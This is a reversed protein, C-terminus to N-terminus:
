PISFLGSYVCINSTHVKRQSPLIGFIATYLQFISWAIAIWKVAKSSFGQLIRINSEKDYKRLIEDTEEANILDTNDVLNRDDM